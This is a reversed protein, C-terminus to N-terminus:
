RLATAYRPATVSILRASPTAVATQKQTMPMGIGAHRQHHLLTEQGARERREYADGEAGPELASGARDERHRQHDHDGGTGTGERLRRKRQDDGGGAAPM